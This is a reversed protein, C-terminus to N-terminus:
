GKASVELEAWVVKGRHKGDYGWRRSLADVLLLGRGEEADDHPSGPAPVKNCTDAVGIRVVGDAPRTVLVRVTRCRSHDIANNVLEAVIQGGAEALEGMGWTSLAASVLIRARRASAPECPLTETYGPIGTATPRAATLNM